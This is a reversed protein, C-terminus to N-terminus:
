VIQQQTYLGLSKSDLPTTGEAAAQSSALRASPVETNQESAREAREARADAVFAAILLEHLKRAHLVSPPDETRMWMLDLHHAGQTGGHASWVQQACGSKQILLSLHCSHSGVEPIIVAPLSRSISHLM